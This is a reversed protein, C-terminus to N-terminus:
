KDTDCVMAQNTYNCGKGIESFYVKTDNVGCWDDFDSKRRMLGKRDEFLGVTQGAAVTSMAVLHVRRSQDGRREEPMPLSASTAGKEIEAFDPETM